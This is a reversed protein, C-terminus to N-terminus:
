ELDEDEEDYRYDEDDYEDFWDSLDLFDINRPVELDAREPSVCRIAFEDEEDDEEALADIEAIFEELITADNTKFAMLGEDDWLYTGDGDIILMYQRGDSLEPEETVLKVRTFGETTQIMMDGGDPSIITCNLARKEMIAERFQSVNRITDGQSMGIIVICVVLAVVAAVGTIVWTLNNTQRDETM